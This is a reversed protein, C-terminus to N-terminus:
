FYMMIDMEFILLWGRVHNVMVLSLFDANKGQFALTVTFVFNGAFSGARDTPSCLKV